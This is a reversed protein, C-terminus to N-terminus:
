EYRLAEAPNLKAAQRAPLLGSITGLLFAFVLVGIVLEISIYAELYQFGAQVAAFEAGKALGYGILIGIVGGIMGIVGSEILFISLINGQTAGIAKMIGIERRRELASTYMTNMVGIGGVIISFIAIFLVAVQITGIIDGAIDQMKESTLVTVDDSGRERRLQFRIENAVDDHDYDPAVRLIAMTVEGRKESIKRLNKLSMYVANDDEASGMEELIGVIRFDKGKVRIEDGIYVPKKFMKEAIKNGLVVELSTERDPWSGSVLGLGRDETYIEKTEEIPSGHVTTSNEEGKFEVTVYGIDFPVVLNIGEIDEMIDIEEDKISGGALIGVLPDTEEGPFVTILDTGFMKLQQTIANELGQGLSVLSVILAIGVIIGIITLWSRLSRHRINRLSLIFFKGIM